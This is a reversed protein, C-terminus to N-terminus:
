PCFWIAFLLWSIERKSFFTEETSSYVGAESTKHARSFFRMQSLASQYMCCVKKICCQLNLTLLIPRMEIKITLTDWNTKHFQSKAACFSKTLMSWAFDQPRTKEVRSVSVDIFNQLTINHVGIQEYELSGYMNLNMKFDSM